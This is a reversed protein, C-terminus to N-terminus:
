VLSDFFEEHEHFNSIFSIFARICVSIIKHVLSVFSNFKRNAKSAARCNHIIFTLLYSFRERGSKDSKSKCHSRSYNWRYTPRLFRGSLDNRTFLGKSIKLDLILVVRFKLRACMKKWCVRQRSM